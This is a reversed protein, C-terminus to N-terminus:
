PQEKWLRLVQGAHILDPDPGIVAKNLVYIRHWRETVQRETAGSGLQRAALSWLTDGERVVLHPRAHPVGGEARDPLPLGALPDGPDGPAALAPGTLAGALAVGCALTALRRVWGAGPAAGRWADVVGALGQIWGWLLGVVLAALCLRVVAEGASSSSRAAAPALAVLGWGAATTLAGAVALCRAGRAGPAAM